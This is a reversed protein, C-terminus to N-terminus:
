MILAKKLRTYYENEYFLKISSKLHDQNFKERNEIMWNIKDAMDLENDVQALRGNEKDRIIDEPGTPCNSSICPIGRSLSELLVMPLGEFNSPLVLANTNPVVQWPNTQWGYWTIKDDLKLKKALRKCKNLDEGDGVVDLKWDYKVLVLAKLLSEINKQHNYEIRGIYLLKYDNQNNYEIKGKFIPIPNYIINIREPKIGIERLQNKIGSSIALHYDAEPLYKVNVTTTNFLSFHIWSYISFKRRTFKRYVSTVHIINTSIAILNDVKPHLTLFIFLMITRIINNKSKIIHVQEVELDKLWQTDGPKGLLLLQMNIDKDNKFRQLVGKLVTETGGKGTLMPAVILNNM